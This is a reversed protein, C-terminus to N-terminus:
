SVQFMKTKKKKEYEYMGFKSKRQNTQKKTKRKGKENKRKKTAKESKPKPKRTKRFKKKNDFAFNFFDKKILNQKFTMWDM